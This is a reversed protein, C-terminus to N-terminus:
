GKSLTRRRVKFGGPKARNATLGMGSRKGSRAVANMAQNGLGSKFLRQGDIKAFGVKEESIAPHEKRESEVGFMGYNGEPM